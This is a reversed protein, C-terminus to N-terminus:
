RRLKRANLKPAPNAGVTCCPRPPRTSPAQSMKAMDIRGTQPINVSSRTGGASVMNLFVTGEARAANLVVQDNRADVGTQTTEPM